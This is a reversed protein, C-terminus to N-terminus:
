QKIGKDLGKDKAGENKLYRFHQFRLNAQDAIFINDANDIFIGQPLLFGGPAERFTKTVSYAAGMSM